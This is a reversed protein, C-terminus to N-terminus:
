FTASLNSLVKSLEGEWYGFREGKNSDHLNGDLWSKVSELNNCANGGCLTMVLAQENPNIHFVMCLHAALQNIQKRRVAKAREVACAQIMKEVMPSKGNKDSSNLGKM